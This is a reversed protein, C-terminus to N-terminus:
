ASKTSQRRSSESACCSNQRPGCSSSRLLTLRSQSFDVLVSSRFIHSLTADLQLGAFGLNFADRGPVAPPKNGVYSAYDADVLWHVFLSDAGDPSAFGFGRPGASSVVGVPPAPATPEGQAIAARPFAAILAALVLFRARM